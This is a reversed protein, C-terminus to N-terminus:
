SSNRTATFQILNIKVKLQAPRIKAVDSFEFTSKSHYLSVTNLGLICMGEWTAQQNLILYLPVNETKLTTVKVQFPPSGIGSIIPLILVEESKM